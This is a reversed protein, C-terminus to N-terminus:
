IRSGSLRATVGASRAVSLMETPSYYLALRFTHYARFIFRTESHSRIHHISRRLVRIDEKSLTSRHKTLYMETGIARRDSKQTLQGSSHRRQLVLREPVVSYSHGAQLFRYLFDTDNKVLLEPDYGDLMWFVDALVVVNSGTAGPNMSASASPALDETISAGDYVKDGLFESLWTVVLHHSTEQLRKLASSLYEPCWLDDDDLFALVEGGSVKAGYNRSRSAGGGTNVSEYYRIPISCMQQAKTCVARAEPDSVDSVVVIEDPIRTQGIVSEIALQLFGSRLHTPIVCSVTM